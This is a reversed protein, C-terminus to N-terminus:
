IVGRSRLEQIEHTSMGLELTLVEETHEGLEPGAWRTAGPTQSMLPLIAPLTYERQGSPTHATQFMGRQQYQPEQM